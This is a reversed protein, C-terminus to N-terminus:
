RGEAEAATPAGKEDEQDRAGVHESEETAGQGTRQRSCAEKLGTHQLLEWWWWGLYITQDEKSNIRSNLRSVTSCSIM